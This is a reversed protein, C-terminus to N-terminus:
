PNWNTCRFSREFTSKISASMVNGPQKYFGTRFGEALTKKTKQLSCHYLIGTNTKGVNNGIIIYTSQSTM